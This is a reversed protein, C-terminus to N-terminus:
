LGAQWFPNNERYKEFARKVTNRIYNDTLQSSRKQKRTVDALERELQDKPIRGFSEELSKMCYQWDWSSNDRRSQSMPSSSPASAGPAAQSLRRGKSPTPRSNTSTVSKFSYAASPLRSYQGPVYNKTDRYLRINFKDRSIKRNFFGPLRALQMSATAGPDAGVNAVLWKSANSQQTENEIMDCRFWVQTNGKSTEVFLTPNYKWVKHLDKTAIDDVLVYRMDYARCYIERMGITNARFYSNRDELIEKASKDFPTQNGTRGRSPLLNVRYKDAKICKLYLQLDEVARRM